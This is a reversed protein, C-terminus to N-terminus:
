ILADLVRTLGRFICKMLLNRRKVGVRRLALRLVFPVTLLTNRADALLALARLEFAVCRAHNVTNDKNRIDMYGLCVLDNQVLLNSAPIKTKEL